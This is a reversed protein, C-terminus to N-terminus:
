GSSYDTVGHTLEHAVVDLSGALFNWQQGDLRLNPPLGEGYVMIGDGAYFANVFFTGLVAPRATLADQRNVPHTFSRIRINANDLGRRGFRKFYYDYTYGAYVHADVNAGDTWDNDSDSAFDSAAPAHLRQPHQAARNLNGRMDYTEIVPPRLRDSGVFTGGQSSASVKKREGLM